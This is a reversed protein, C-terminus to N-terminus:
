QALTAGGVADLTRNRNRVLEARRRSDTIEALNSANGAHTEVIAHRDDVAIVTETVPDEHNVAILYRRPDARVRDYAALTVEVQQKCTLDSCECILQVSSIREQRAFGRSLSAIRENVERHLGRHIAEADWWNEVSEDLTM